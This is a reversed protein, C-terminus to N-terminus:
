LTYRLYLKKQIIRFRILKLCIWIECKGSPACECAVGSSWCFTHDCKANSLLFHIVFVFCLLSFTVRECQWLQRTWHVWCNNVEIPSGDTRWRKPMKPRNFISKTECNKMSNSIWTPKATQNRRALTRTKWRENFEATRVRTRALSHRRWYSYLFDFGAACLVFVFLFLTYKFNSIFVSWRVSSSRISQFLLRLHSSSAAAACSHDIKLDFWNFNFSLRRKKKVCNNTLVVFRRCHNFSSQTFHARTRWVGNQSKASRHDDIQKICLQRSM